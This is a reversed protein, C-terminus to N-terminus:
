LCRSFRALCLELEMHQRQSLRDRLDPVTLIGTITRIFNKM